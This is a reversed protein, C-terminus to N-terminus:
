KEIYTKNVKIYTDSYDEELVEESDWDILDDSLDFITENKSNGKLIYLEANTPKRKLNVSVKQWREFILKM